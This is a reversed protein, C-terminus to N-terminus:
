FSDSDDVANYSAARIPAPFQRPRARSVPRDPHAPGALALAQYSGPALDTLHCRGHQDTTTSYFRDPRSRLAAEPILVVTAGPVPKGDGDLVAGELSGVGDSLVLDLSITGGNAVTLGDRLVDDPGSRASKLHLGPPLGTFDVVYHGAEVSTSLRQDEGFRATRAGHFSLDVNELAAKGDEEVTYHADIAAEATVNVTFGPVDGDTVQLRQFTSYRGTV